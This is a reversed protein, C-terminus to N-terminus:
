LRATPCTVVQWARVRRACACVSRAHRRRSPGEHGKGVDHGGCAVGQANRVAVGADRVWSARSVGYWLTVWEVTEAAAPTIYYPRANAMLVAGTATIVKSAALYSASNLSKHVLANDAADTHSARRLVIPNM